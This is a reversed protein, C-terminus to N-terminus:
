AWSVRGALEGYLVRQWHEVGADIGAIHATDAIDAVATAVSSIDLAVVGNRNSRM